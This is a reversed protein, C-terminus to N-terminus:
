IDWLSYIKFISLFSLKISSSTLLLYVKFSLRLFNGLSNSSLSTYTFTSLKHNLDENIFQDLYPLILYRNLYQLIRLKGFLIKRINLKLLNFIRCPHHGPPLLLIAPFPKLFYILLIGWCYGSADFSVHLKLIFQFDM